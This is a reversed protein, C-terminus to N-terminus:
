TKLNWKGLLKSRAKYVSFCYTRTLYLLSDHVVRGHQQHLIIVDPLVTCDLLFQIFLDQCSHQTYKQIVPLLLPKDRLYSAWLTYVRLRAPSLDECDCLIHSLTGPTPDLRCLPLSCSGSSDGSWHRSLYCTRFRGSLMKAQCTAKEVEYPNSGASTWIPHPKVLSYFEPKFFILSDLRSADQRFKKEWFDVVMSKALRKYSCKTPPNNLITLPDPLSYKTSIDRVQLFWYRSSPKANCLVHSGHRHLINSPGLRSIMGLLSLQRLDLLATLPLSGGLFNVVPEPTAKHLRQLRELSVKYHHHLIDKEAKSLVLSSLGSLLRPSGYLLEIRLSAAPNGRHGKALGAPLVSQLASNHASIRALINPLNGNVSRVIGVHEAENSFPIKNKGLSVPSVLKWYSASSDLDPPSFCLLKTKEPVLEVHYKACYQETLYLLHQLNFISDSVLLTDDAQGISSIWIGNMSIGLESQQTTKLQENNALKYQRDSLIGGQEVGCKDAIPGMLCKEFEVYTLRNSLRDALYLLGQGRSGALFANRIIFELLIKDFASKADLMIVFLPKKADFLAHQVTETLLLAALEHSSGSGQFQTEAQVSAWGSEYLGGVYKDLAKSLLPCTSITRYSRDSDKPKGHGKYLVMAWVSNLEPLSFLNINSIITNMLFWFHRAGEIGANIFHRPTISHLDNVDPKLSYLVETAERSSIPPIKIGSSCIKRITAYDSSVAQFSPSSHINSMDPSKLSSLSDFFGDPVSDGTYVKDGVSLSHIRSSQSNKSTKLSRYLAGPNSSLVSHVLTDRENCALMKSANDIRKCKSRAASVARKADNLQDETTSDSSALRQVLKSLRLLKAQAASVTPDSSPKITSQKALKISKNSAAACTSLLDNTSQLLVSVSAPSSSDSWTQRLRVLSDSVLDQYFPTNDNDWLIKIRMNQIKPAVVNESLDRGPIAQPKLPCASIIIDHASNVLPHSLKCIIDQVTEVPSNQIQYLLVDLQADFLGLGTFHHHSPHGFDLSLFNNKSCFHKFLNSRVVNRPNCNADGRIYIPCQHTSSVEELFLDLLSLASVFEPDRGSTPLYLSIHISPAFGPIKLLIPLFSPSTTPLPTVFPDLESRWMLLTGGYAKSSDLALEPNSTEESNLLFSYEGNFPSCLISM